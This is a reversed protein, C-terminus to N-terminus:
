GNREDRLSRDRVEERHEAMGGRIRAKLGEADLWALVMEPDSRMRQLICEVTRLCNCTKHNTHGACTSVEGYIVTRLDTSMNAV